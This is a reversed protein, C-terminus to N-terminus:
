LAQASARTERAGLMLNVDTMVNEKASRARVQVQKRRQDCQVEQELTKRTVVKQPRGCRRTYAKNSLDEHFSAVGVTMQYGAACIDDFNIDHAGWIRAGIPQCRLKFYM